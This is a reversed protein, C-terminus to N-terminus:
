QFPLTTSVQFTTHVNSRMQLMSSVFVYLPPKNFGTFNLYKKRHFGCFFFFVAVFIIVVLLRLDYEQIM